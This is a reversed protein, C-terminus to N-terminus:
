LFRLFGSRRAAIAPSGISCSNLLFFPSLSYHVWECLLKVFEGFDVPTDDSFRQSRCSADPFRMFLPIHAIFLTFETFSLLIVNVIGLWAPTIGCFVGSPTVVM